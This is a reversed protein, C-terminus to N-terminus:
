LYFYVKIDVYTPQPKNQIIKKVRIYDEPEQLCDKDVKIVCTDIDDKEM